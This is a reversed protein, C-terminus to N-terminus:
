RRWRDPWLERSTRVGLAALDCWASTMATLASASGRGLRGLEESVEGLQQVGRRQAQAVDAFFREGRRVADDFVESWASSGEHQVQSTLVEDGRAEQKSEM